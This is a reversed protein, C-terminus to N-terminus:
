GDDDAPGRVYFRGKTTREQICGLERLCNTIRRADATNLRSAGDFGLISQAIQGVTFRPLDIREALGKEIIALWPDDEQRKLQQPKFHTREFDVDPWHPEKNRYVVVAEAFLQDRAKEMGDVDITTCKVPWFRRGGTVDKIYVDQNTTGIFLCQRKEAVDHRGFPPRYKEERRTIFAKLAEVETKSFAALESVEMLWKGRLHQRADKGSINDPLSDSFWEDGALKRCASSKLTGQEGELVLMYDAQCGPDYIRAVMAILFMRGIARVYEIEQDTEACAGLFTFLWTDLRPKRDWELNDLYDRIPHQPRERAIHEVAQGVIERGVRALGSRQLWQQLGAIADDDVERPIPKPAPDAEDVRPWERTIISHQMMEDFAVAYSMRNDGRLAILVNDLDPIIRGRDDRRLRNWWDGVGDPALRVVRPRSPM